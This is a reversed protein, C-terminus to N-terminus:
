VHTFLPIIIIILIIIIMIIIVTFPALWMHSDDTTVNVGDLLKDKTRRDGSNGPIDNLDRPCTTIMRDSLRIASGNEGLLEIGTLGVYNADGWTDHLLLVVVRGVAGSGMAGGGVLNNDDATPPKRMGGTPPARGDVAAGTPSMPRPPADQLPPTKSGDEEVLPVVGSAARLADLSEALTEILKEEQTFLIVEARSEADALNGPADRLEGRFVISDDLTICVLRAGRASHVRSKNYNWIRLMSVTLPAGFDVVVM